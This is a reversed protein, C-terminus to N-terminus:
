EYNITYFIALDFFVSKNYYLGYLICLFFVANKYLNKYLHNHLSAIRQYACAEM